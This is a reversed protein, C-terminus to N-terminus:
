PKSGKRRVTLSRRVLGGSPREDLWHYEARDGKVGGSLGHARFGPQLEGNVLVRRRGSGTTVVLAGEARWRPMADGRVGAVAVPGIADGSALLIHELEFRERDNYRLGILEGFPSLYRDFSHSTPEPKLTGAGFLESDYDTKAWMWRGMRHVTTTRKLRWKGSVQEVRGDCHHVAAKGGEVILWGDDPDAMYAFNKRPFRKKIAGDVVLGAEQKGFTVIACWHEDGQLDAALWDSASLTVPSRHPFSFTLTKDAKQPQGVVWRGDNTTAIAAPQKFRRAPQGKVHVELETKTYLQQVAEGPRYMVLPGRTRGDAYHLTARNHAVTVLPEHWAPEPGDRQPLWAVGEYRRGDRVTFGPDDKAPAWVVLAWRSGDLLLRASHIGSKPVEYSRRKGDPGEVHVKGGAVWAAACSSNSRLTELPVVNPHGDAPKPLDVTAGSFLLLRTGGNPLSWRAQCLELTTGEPSAQKHGELWLREHKRSMWAYRPAGKWRRLEGAKGCDSCPPTARQEFASPTLWRLKDGDKVLSLWPATPTHPDIHKGFSAELEDMPASVVNDFPPSVASVRGFTRFRLRGDPTRELARALSNDRTTRIGRYPGHWRGKDFIRGSLPDVGPHAARLGVVHLEDDFGELAKVTAANRGDVALGLAEQQAEEAQEFLGSGEDVQEMCDRIGEVRAVYQWDEAINWAVLADGWRAGCIDAGCSPLLRNEFPSKVAGSAHFFPRPTRGVFRGDEVGERLAPRCREDVSTLATNLTVIM